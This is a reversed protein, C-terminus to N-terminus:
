KAQAKMQMIRGKIAAAQKATQSEKDVGIVEDMLKDAKELDAKSQPNFCSLKAMLAKQKNEGSLSNTAIFDDVAKLADEIKGKSAMGAVEGHLSKLATKLGQTKKFGTTDKPDLNYIDEIVGKYHPLVDESLSSLAAVLKAAKEVGESKNADAFAADIEIKKALFQDLHKSYAEPGGAQYGTKAFPRGEADMLLITPFGRVGYKQQLAQNQKKIEASQEKKQPFDLEVLVFKDAAYKKFEDKSFVEDVLRICWGCWDSGTFDVLLAKNEAAAKKKAAEFNTEWGEGGAYSTLTVLCTILIALITKPM